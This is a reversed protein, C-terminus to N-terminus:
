TVPESSKQATSPCSKNHPYEPVLRYTLPGMIGHSQSTHIWPFFGCSIGDIASPIMLFWLQHKVEEEMLGNRGHMWNGVNQKAEFYPSGAHTSKPPTLKITGHYWIQLRYDTNTPSSFPMWLERQLFALSPSEDQRYGGHLERTM